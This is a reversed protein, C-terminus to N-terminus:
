DDFFGGMLLLTNLMPHCKIHRLEDKSFWKYESHTDNLKIDHEETINIIFPTGVTHRDLFFYSKSLLQTYNTAHLGTEEFLVRKLADELLEWKRIKGGFVWWYEKGIGKSRKGLLIKKDKIVIAEVTPLPLLEGMVEHIPEGLEKERNINSM